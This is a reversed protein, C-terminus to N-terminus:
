SLLGGKMMEQLDSIRYKKDGQKAKALRGPLLTEPPLPTPTRNEEDM